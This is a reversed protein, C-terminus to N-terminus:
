KEPEERGAIKVSQKQQYFIGELLAAVTALPAAYLSSLQTLTTEIATQVRFPLNYRMCINYAYQEATKPNKILTKLDEHHNAMM